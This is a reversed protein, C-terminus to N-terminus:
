VCRSTYLLHEANDLGHLEHVLDFRISGAFDDLTQDGVTLGDFVALGEEGQTNM